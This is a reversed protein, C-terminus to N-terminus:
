SQGQRGSDQCPLSQLCELNSSELVADSEELPYHSSKSISISSGHVPVQSLLSLQNRDVELMSCRDETNSGDSGQPDLRGHAARQKSARQSGSEAAAELRSCQSKPRTRQRVMLMVVMAFSVISLIVAGTCVAIIITNQMLPASPEPPPSKPIVMCRADSVASGELVLLRGESSCNTHPKCRSNGGPSFTGPSCPVCEVDATESGNRLLQTGADCWSHSRCLLCSSGSPHSCFSGAQCRCRADSTASCHVAEDLGDVPDCHQCRLCGDRGSTVELFFGEPCLKCQTQASATCHAEVFYGTPCQECCRGQHLYQSDRCAANDRKPRGLSGASTETCDSCGSARAILMTVSVALFVEM